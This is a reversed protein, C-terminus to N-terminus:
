LVNFKFCVFMHESLQADICKHTNVPHPTYLRQPTTIYTHSSTVISYSHYHSNFEAHMLTITFFFCKDERFHYYIAGIKGLLLTDDEKCGTGLGTCVTGLETCVTGLETCVIGLETCGTGLETCGTGLEICRDRTWYM